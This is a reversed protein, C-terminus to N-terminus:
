CWSITRGWPGFWWSSFVEPSVGLETQGESRMVIRWRIASSGHWWGDIGSKAESNEKSAAFL